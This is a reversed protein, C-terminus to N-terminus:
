NLSQLCVSSSLLTESFCSRRVSTTFLKDLPLLPRKVKVCSAELSKLPVLSMLDLWQIQWAIAALNPANPAVEVDEVRLADYVQESEAELEFVAVIASSAKCHKTYLALDTAISPTGTVIEHRQRTEVDQARECRPDWGRPPRLAEGV